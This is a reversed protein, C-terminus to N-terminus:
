LSLIEILLDVILSVYFIFWLSILVSKYSESVTHLSSEFALLILYNIYCVERFRLILITFLMLVFALCKLLKKIPWMVSSLNLVKWYIKRFFVWSVTWRKHKLCLMLKWFSDFSFLNFCGLNVEIKCWKCLHVYLVASFSAALVIQLKCCLLPM